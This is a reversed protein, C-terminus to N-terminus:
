KPSPPAYRLVYDTLRQCPQLDVIVNAAEAERRLGARGDSDWAAPRVGATGEETAPRALLWYRGPALHSFAFKADSVAPTEAYRLVNEAQQAETPVLHVRLRAPLRTGEGVAIVQGHLSAAGEAVIMTLGRLREGTKLLLGDRAADVPQRALPTVDLTLARLYWQESPLRPELRYRGAELDRLAFEGHPTPTSILLSPLLASQNKLNEKEARRAVVITEEFLGPRKSECGAQGTNAELLLRGSISSLPALSLVVGGVDAGKVTVRRPPSAAREGPGFSGARLEYEGDPLGYIAFGRTANDRAIFASRVAEGTVAQTLTVSIQNLAAYIASGSSVTGSITHGPESRLSIDISRVEEGSHVVVEGATERTASPFYTPPDGEYASGVSSVSAPNLNAVVVYSGPTLGYVRYIGRDDTLRSVGGPSRLPRGELDRVRRAMVTATIAPEGNASTVKGTIVGGKVMTIAVSDGPRYYRSESREPALSPEAVYGRLSATVSYVGPALNSVLFNGDKDTDTTRRHAVLPNGVANVNIIVRALPQGADSLVRGTISGAGTASSARGAASRPQCLPVIVVLLLGCKILDPVPRRFSSHTM